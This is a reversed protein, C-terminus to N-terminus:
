EGHVPRTDRGSGVARRLRRPALRVAFLGRLQSAQQYLFRRGSIAAPTGQDQHAQHGRRDARNGESLRNCVGSVEVPHQITQVWNVGKWTRPSIGRQNKEGGTRTNSILRMETDIPFAGATTFADGRKVTIQNTTLNPDAVVEIQETTGDAYLLEFTDGNLIYSVDDLTMITDGAVVAAALTATDPRQNRGMTHFEVQGVEKMALRAFFPNTNVYKWNQVVVTLDEGVLNEEEWPFLLGANSAPYIAPPM